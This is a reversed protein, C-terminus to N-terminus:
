RIRRVAAERRQFHSRETIFGEAWELFIRVKPTTARQRAYSISLM